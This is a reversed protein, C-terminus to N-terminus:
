GAGPRRAHHRKEEEQLEELLADALPTSAVQPTAGKALWWQDNAAWWTGICSLCALDNPGVLQPTPFAFRNRCWGRDGSEAAQFDRCNACRKGRHHQREAAYWDAELPPMQGDHSMASSAPPGNAYRSPVSETQRPPLPAQYEPYSPAAQTGPPPTRRSSAVSQDRYGTEPAIPLNMTVATHPADHYTPQPPATEALRPRGVGEDGVVTARPSSRRDDGRDFPARSVTEAPAITELRRQPTAEGAQQAIQRRELARRHAEGVNSTRSRAVPMPPEETSSRPQEVGVIIDDPRKGQYGSRQRAQDPVPRNQGPLVDYAGAASEYYDQDWGIRCALEQRRVLAFGVIEQCRQNRCWGSEGIGSQEFFRCSGCERRTMDDGSERSGTRGCDIVTRASFWADHVGM